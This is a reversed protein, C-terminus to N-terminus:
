REPWNEGNSWSKGNEFKWKGSEMGSDRRERGADSLREPPIM